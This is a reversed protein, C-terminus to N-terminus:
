IELINESLIKVESEVSIESKGLFIKIKKGSPQVIEFSKKGTIKSLQYALAVSASGCATEYYITNLCNVRVLPLIQYSWRNLKRFAVFGAAGGQSLDPLQRYIQDFLDNFGANEASSLGKNQDSFLKQASPPLISLDVLIQSIGTLVVRICDVAFSDLILKEGSLKQIIEYGFKVKVCYSGIFINSVEAKVLSPSGSTKFIVSSRRSKLAILVAACRTANVCLEGNAMNLNPIIGGFNVFGVQEVKMRQVYPDALLKRALGIRDAFPVKTVVLATINGGPDAIIFKIKKKM